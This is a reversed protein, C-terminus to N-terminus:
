PDIPLLLTRLTLNVDLAQALADMSTPDMRIGSLDLAELTSNRRLMTSLRAAGRVGIPNASLVLRRISTNDDLSNALLRVAHDDLHCNTLDVDTISPASELLAVLALIQDHGFINGHFNIRRLRPWSRLFHVVSILHEGSLHANIFSISELGASEPTFALVQALQKPSLQDLPIDSLQLIRLSRCQLVNMFFFALDGTSLGLAGNLSFVRLSSAESLTESLLRVSQPPWGSAPVPGAM